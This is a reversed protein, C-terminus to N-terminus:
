KRRARMQIAGLVMPVTARLGGNWLLHTFLECLNVKALRSARPLSEVCEVAAKLARPAPSRSKNHVRAEFLLHHLARLEDYHESMSSASSQNRSDARRRYRFAVRRLYVGVYGREALSMWVDWDEYGDRIRWGGCNELAQRRFLCGAGPVCNVYTILWPDLAPTTPICFTTSGFTQVDGWAAAAEPATDLAEMLATLAGPELLDDADLRLVYPATSTEFGAMVAASPGMNEQRLMHVKQNDLNALLALTAPDTSGDDVVILEVDDVDISAIAAELTEGDNYCPIIVAVRPQERATM